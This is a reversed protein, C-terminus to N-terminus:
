GSHKMPGIRTVDLVPPRWLGRSMCDAPNSGGVIYRLEIRVRSFTERITHICMRYMWSKPCQGRAAFVLPKHDTYVWVIGKEGPDVLACLARTMALPESSVSSQLNFEGHDKESWKAGFTTTRGDRVLVAGWGWFSADVFITTTPAADTDKWCSILGQKLCDLIWQQIETMCSGSLAVEMNWDATSTRGGGSVALRSVLTAFARLTTAYRGAWVGVQESAFLCLGIISAFKKCKMTQNKSTGGGNLSEMLRELKWRTKGTIGRLSDKCCIYKEGCFEFENTIVEGGQVVAGVADCRALFLEAAKKLAIRDNSLFLINDVRKHTTVGSMSTLPPCLADLVAVAVQVSGIFGMPLVTLYEAAGVCFFRMIEKHLSMQDFCSVLDFQIAWEAKAVGRRVDDASDFKVAGGVGLTRLTENIRPEVIARTATKLNGTVTDIKHENVTFVKCGAQTRNGAICELKSVKGLKRLIEMQEMTLSNSAVQPECRQLEREIAEYLPSPEVWKKAELLAGRVERSMELEDLKKWSIRGVVDKAKFEGQPVAGRLGLEKVTPAARGLMRLWKEHDGVPLSTRQVGNNEPGGPVERGSRPINAAVCHDQARLVGDATSGYHRKSCPTPPCWTETIPMRPKGGSDKPSVSDGQEHSPGHQWREGCDARAVGTTDTDFGRIRRTGSCNKLGVSASEDDFGRQSHYGNGSSKPGDVNTTCDVVDSSFICASKEPYERKGHDGGHTGEDSPGGPVAAGHNCGQALWSHGNGMSPRRGDQGGADNGRIDASFAFRRGNYRRPVDANVRAMTTSSRPGSTPRDGSHCRAGRTLGQADETRPRPCPADDLRGGKEGGTANKAGRAFHIGGRTATGRIRARRRGGACHLRRPLINEELEDERMEDDIDDNDAEDDSDDDSDEGHPPNLHPWEAIPLDDDVEIAEIMPPQPTETRRPILGIRTSALPQVPLGVFARQAQVPTEARLAEIMPPQPTEARRPLLGIGTSALPLVPLGVFARQAQVPTEARLAQDRLTQDQVMRQPAPLNELIEISLINVEQDNVPRPYPLFSTTTAVDGDEDICHYRTVRKVLGRRALVEGIREVIVKNELARVRIATRYKLPMVIRAIADNSMGQIEATARVAVDRQTEVNGEIRSGVPSAGVPTM